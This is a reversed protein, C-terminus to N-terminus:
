ASNKDKEDIKFSNNVSKDNEQQQIGSNDVLADLLDYNDSKSDINVEGMPTEQNDLHDFYKYLKM